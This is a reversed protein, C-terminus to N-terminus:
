CEAIQQQYKRQVNYYGEFQTPETYGKGAAQLNMWRMFNKPALEGSFVAVNNGASVGDLIIESIVSSKGAARLGQCLLYM